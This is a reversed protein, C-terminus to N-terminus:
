HRPKGDFASSFASMARRELDDTLRGGSQSLLRAMHREAERGRAEIMHSVISSVIRRVLATAAGVAEGGAAVLVGGPARLAIRSM